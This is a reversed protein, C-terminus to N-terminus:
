ANKFFEGVRKRMKADRKQFESYTQSISPKFYDKVDDLASSSYCECRTRFPANVRAVDLIVYNGISDLEWLKKEEYWASDVQGLLEFDKGSIWKDINIYSQTNHKSYFAIMAFGEKIRGASTFDYIDMKDKLNDSYARRNAVDAIISYIGFKVSRTSGFGYAYRIIAKSFRNIGDEDDTGNVFLYVVLAIRPYNNSYSDIVQFWKGFSSDANFKNKNIFSLIDLIKFLDDMVERYEKNQLPSYKQAVFFDLLKIEMQTINERGRIIHSYYRFVDDVPVQMAECQTTFESWQKRFQTQEKVYLARRYLTAKFLDANELDKGRNNLTVFVTLAKNVAADETNDKLAIPLMYVHDLLYNTFSKLKVEGYESEYYSLWYYFNLFAQFIKSEKEGFALEGNKLHAQTKSKVDDLSMRFIELLTKYDEKDKLPQVRLEKDDGERADVSLASKLPNITSCMLSLIKLMLWITTLRQQGDVVQSAYKATNSNALVLNGIFYDDDNNFANMLDQYLEYCEDYGWSYPRQYDPIKYIEEGAFIALISKQVAELTLAM